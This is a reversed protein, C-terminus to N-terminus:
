PPGQNLLRLICRAPLITQVVAYPPQSRLMV